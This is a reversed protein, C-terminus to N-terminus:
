PLRKVIPRTSSIKSFKPTGIGSPKSSFVTIMFSSLWSRRFIPSNKTSNNRTVWAMGPLVAITISVGTPLSILVPSKRRSGLGSSWSFVSTVRSSSNPRSPTSSRILSLVLASRIPRVGLSLVMSFLKMSIISLAGPRMKTAIKLVLTLRMWIITLAATCWLRLTASSPRLMTLVRSIATRLPKMFIGLPVNIGIALTGFWFSWSTTTTQVPPWPSGFEAKTRMLMPSCLYTARLSCSVTMKDLM